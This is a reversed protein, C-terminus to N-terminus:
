RRVSFRSGDDPDESGPPADPGTGTHRASRRAMRRVVVDTPPQAPDPSSREAPRSAAVAELGGAPRRRPPRSGLRGRLVRDVVVSWAAGMLLGVGMVAIALKIWGTSPLAGVQTPALVFPRYRQQVPVGARVQLEDAIGPAATIVREVVNRVAQEDTGWARVEYTSEFQPIRVDYSRGNRTDGPGWGRTGDGGLEAQTERSNLQAELAEGILVDGASGLPNSASAQEQATLSPQVWGYSAAATYTTQQAQV